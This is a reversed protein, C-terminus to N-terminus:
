DAREPERLSAVLERELFRRWQHRPNQNSEQSAIPGQAITQRAGELTTADIYAGLNQPIGQWVCFARHRGFVAIPHLAHLADPRGLFQRNDQGRAACLWPDAGLGPRHRDGGFCFQAGDARGDAGPLGYHNRPVYSQWNTNTVFSVSTNLAFSQEVATQGQPNFPLYWQLRQLAYLTVFGVVSFLLMAVAYTLWHQEEKEDVGCCWYVAREVPRLVPWLFTREGNFVRTMYGGFPRTVAIVIVSFLAIQVWGNATM